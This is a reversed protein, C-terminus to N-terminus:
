RVPVLGSVVWDPVERPVASILIAITSECTATEDKLKLCGGIGQNVAEVAVKMPGLYSVSNPSLHMDYHQGKTGFQRLLGTLIRINGVVPTEKCLCLAVDVSTAAVVGGPSVLIDWVVFNDPPLDAIFFYEETGETTGVTMGIWWKQGFCWDPLAMVKHIPWKSIDM